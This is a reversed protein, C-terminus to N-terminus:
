CLSFVCRSIVVFQTHRWATYRVTTGDCTTLLLLILYPLVNFVNLLKHTDHKFQLLYRITYRRHNKM